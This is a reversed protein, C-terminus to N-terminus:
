RAVFETGGGTCSLTGAGAGGTRSVSVVSIGPAIQFRDGVSSLRVDEVNGIRERCGAWATSPTSQDALCRDRAPVDSRM